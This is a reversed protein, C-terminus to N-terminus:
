RDIRKGRPSLLGRRGQPPPPNRARPAAPLRRTPPVTEATTAHPSYRSGISPSFASRAKASPTGHLASVEDTDHHCDNCGTAGSRRLSRLCAKGRVGGSSRSQFLMANIRARTDFTGIVCACATHSPPRIRFFLEIARPRSRRAIREIVKIRPESVESRYTVRPQQRMLCQKHVKRAACAPRPASLTKRLALRARPPSREAGYGARALGLANM